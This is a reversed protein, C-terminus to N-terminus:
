IDINMYFQCHKLFIHFYIYHSFYSCEKCDMTYLVRVKNQGFGPCLSLDEISAHFLEELNQFLSFKSQNVWHRLWPALPCPWWFIHILAWHNLHFLGQTPFFILFCDLAGRGQLGKCNLAYLKFLGMTHYIHFGLPLFIHHSLQKLVWVNQTGIM